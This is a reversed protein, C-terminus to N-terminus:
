QNLNPSTNKPLLFKTGDNEFRLQSAGFHVLMAPKPDDSFSLTIPATPDSIRGLQYVIGKALDGSPYEQVIVMGSYNVAMFISPSSISDQNHGVVANTWSTPMAGYEYRTSHTVLEYTAASGVTATALAAGIYFLMHRRPVRPAEEPPLSALPRSRAVPRYQQPVQIEEYEEDDYFEEEYRSKRVSPSIHRAPFEDTQRRMRAARSDLPSFQM